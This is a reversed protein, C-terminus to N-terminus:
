VRADGPQLTRALAPRDAKPDGFLARGTRQHVRARDRPRQRRADACAPHRRRGAQRSPRRHRPQLETGVAWAMGWLPMAATPISSPPANSRASPRKTTSASSSRWARTSGRKPMVRRQASPITIRASDRHDPDPSARRRSRLQAAAADAPPQDNAARAARWAVVLGLCLPSRFDEHIPIYCRTM